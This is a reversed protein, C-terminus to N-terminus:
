AAISNDDSLAELVLAHMTATAATDLISAIREPKVGAERLAVALADIRESLVEATAVHSRESDATRNRHGSRTGPTVFRKRVGRERTVIWPSVKDV